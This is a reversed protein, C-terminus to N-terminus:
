YDNTDGEEDLAMGSSQAILDMAQKILDNDDPILSEIDLYQKVISHNLFDNLVTKYTSEEEMQQIVQEFEDKLVPDFDFVNYVVPYSLEVNNLLVFPLDDTYNQLATYVEDEHISQILDDNLRQAQTLVINLIYSQTRAQAEDYYNNMVEELAVILDHSLWDSECEIAVNEWIISALPIFENSIIKGAKLEILYCGHEGVENRHRGQPTGAYQILPQTSLTSPKHIHGLAWYTYNKAKLDDLTFPAYRATRHDRSDISGHLIGIVNHDSASNIPYQDIMRETVWQQHYSFGYVTLTEHTETTLEIQSVTNNALLYVGEPYQQQSYGERMYDHNGHVMVVQINHGSLRQIQQNFFRVAQITQRESNYIDGSIIMVDISEQIAIDVCKRFSSYPSQILYQHIQNPTHSM